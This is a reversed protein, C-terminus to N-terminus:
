DQMKKQAGCPVSSSSLAETAETLGADDDLDNDKDPNTKNDTM